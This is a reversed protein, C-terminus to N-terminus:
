QNHLHKIIRVEKFTELTCSSSGFGRIYVPYQAALLMANILKRSKVPFRYWECMFVSENLNEFNNSLRQGFICFFYIHAYSLIPHLVIFIVGNFNLTKMM